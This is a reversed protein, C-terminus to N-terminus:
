KLFHFDEYEEIAAACQAVGLLLNQDASAGLFELASMGDADYSRAFKILTLSNGDCAEHFKALEFNAVSARFLLKMNTANVPHLKIVGKLSIILSQMAQISLVTSPSIETAQWPQVGLPFASKFHVQLFSRTEDSFLEIYPEVHGQFDDPSITFLAGGFLPVLCKAHERAVNLDLGGVGSELSLVEVGQQLKLWAVLFRWRSLPPLSQFVLIEAVDVVKMELLWDRGAEVSVDIDESALLLADEKGAAFNLRKSLAYFELANEFSVLKLFHQLCQDKLHPLLIQDAFTAVRSLLLDP